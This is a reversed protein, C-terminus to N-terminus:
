YYLTEPRGPQLFLTRDHITKHKAIIQRLMTEPEKFHSWGKYHVPIITNPNIDIAAKILEKGNLTYHACGTLWPFQVGGANFIAIDIKFRQAIQPIGKFYVTDGSIYVAGNPLSPGEIIFGIVSGSLFEPIWRPRHQAPTATITLPPTNIHFAEWPALGIIGPIARAAKPTSIAMPVTATFQRGTTDFNDKHQHHSLLVLDIKPLSAASIAPNGTKRSFTGAGHYYIKGAKDLTPDTLIHYGNINILVCATDIHTITIM